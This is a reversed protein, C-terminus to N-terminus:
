IKLHFPSFGDGVRRSREQREFQAHGVGFQVFGDVGGRQTALNLDLRRPPLILLPLLCTQEIQEARRLTPPLGQARHQPRVRTDDHRGKLAACEGRCM